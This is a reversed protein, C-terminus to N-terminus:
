YLIIGTDPGHALWRRTSRMSFLTVASAAHCTCTFLSCIGWTPFLNVPEFSTKCTDLSFTEASGIWLPVFGRKCRGSGSGSGPRDDRKEKMRVVKLRRVKVLLGYVHYNRLWTLGRTRAFEFLSSIPPFINPFSTM